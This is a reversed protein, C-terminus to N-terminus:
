RRGLSRLWEVAQGLHDQAWHIARDVAAVYDGCAKALAPVKAAIEPAFVYLALLVVAALALMLIARGLPSPTIKPLDQPAQPAAGTDPTQGLVASVDDIAPLLDRRPRPAPPTPPIDGAAKLSQLHDAGAGHRTLPMETQMELGFRGAEAHRAKVERLAEQRLVELVADDMGSPPDAADQDPEDVTEDLRLDAFAQFWSHGCNSCEVERGSRPIASRAIEYEADCSPCVLRM